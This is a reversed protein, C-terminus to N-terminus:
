RSALGKAYDSLQDSVTGWGSFFGMDEHAQRAENSRHRAIATYTTAGNEGDDFLIIATMFPDAAPKWGETYSDTFVLKKGDIVELWVGHNQMEHGDVDFTTNFKGGVRLDIECATVRHPRPVFFQRIHEPSTWCDWLVSRPAAIIRTFCLDTKPDLKM